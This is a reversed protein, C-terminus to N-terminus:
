IKEVGTQGKKESINLIFLSLPQALVLRIRRGSMAADSYWIAPQRHNLESRPASCRKSVQSKVKGLRSANEGFRRTSSLRRRGSPRSIINASNQFHLRNWTLTRHEAAFPIVAVYASKPKASVHKKGPHPRARNREPM